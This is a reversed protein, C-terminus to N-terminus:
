LAFQEVPAFDDTLIADKQLPLQIQDRIMVSFERHSSTVAQLRERTLPQKSAILMLNQKVARDYVPAVPYVGVHAFQSGFTNAVYRIMNSQQGEVASIINVVVIGDKDTASAMRAVAQQSLLQFPPVTASFADLFIMAYGSHNENLYTRGDAAIIKLNQPQKFNFYQKSIVPLQEDIEVTDVKARPEQRALYEPFTFAGGGIILYKSADPRLQSAYSFGRIYSFPQGQTGDIYVGSQLGNRDTQYVRVQANNLPVDRIIVRSYATNIEDVFGSLMPKPSLFGLVIIFIFMGLQLYWYKKTLMLLSVLVLGGALYALLHQTGVVGFLWYGTMFTGVLSGVTSAADIRSLRRGSTAVSEISLRALYPSISGLLFTPLAFLAISAFLAEVQLPLQWDTLWLLVSDKLINTAAIMLAGGLLLLVIDSAQKRKDALIGGFAYGLALATLIIGIISTWTYITDGLYPAIIRAAALEFTLVSMGIFFATLEYRSISTRFLQKALPTTM